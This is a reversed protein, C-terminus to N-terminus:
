GVRYATTHGRPDTREDRNPSLHWPYARNLATIQEWQKRRAEAQVYLDSAVKAAIAAFLLALVIQVGYRSTKGFRKAGQLAVLRLTTLHHRVRKPTVLSLM